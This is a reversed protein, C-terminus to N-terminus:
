HKSNGIGVWKHQYIKPKEIMTLLAKYNDLVEHANMKYKAGCAAVMSKFDYWRVLKVAPNIRHAIRATEPTWGIMQLYSLSRAELLEGTVEHVGNPLEFRKRLRVIDPGLELSEEAKYCIMSCFTGHTSSFYPKSEMNYHDAIYKTLDKILLPKSSVILMDDGLILMRKITHMNMLVLRSHIALNVIANGLATTAQGTLRMGNLTGSVTDGKYRWHQHVTRWSKLLDQDVGLMQYVAFEFDLMYEDTQRDQKSLDNEFFHCNVDTTRMLASLTDPTLGDAYVVEPRLLSKLRDKAEMFCPSYMACIGKAQWAIIRCITDQPQNVPKDKLLSELKLHVKVRNLPNAMFGEDLILELENQIKVADPRERLWKHIEQYNFSCPERQYADLQEKANSLIYAESFMNLQSHITQNAHKRITKVAGLRTNVSNELAGAFKTFVPRSQEPYKTLATKTEVVLPGPQMTSKIVSTEPTHIVLCDTLDNSQFFTLAELKPEIHAESLVMCFDGTAVNIYPRFTPVVRAFRDPKPAKPVHTLDMFKIAAINHIKSSGREPLPVSWGCDDVVAYPLEQRHCVVDPGSRLTDPIHRYRTRKVVDDALMVTRATRNTGLLQLEDRCLLIKDDAAHRKIAINYIKTVQDQDGSERCKTVKRRETLGLLSEVDQFIPHMECLATIAREDKIIYAPRPILVVQQQPKVQWFGSSPQHPQDDWNIRSSTNVENGHHQHAPERDQRWGENNNQVKFVFGSGAGVTQDVAQTQGRPKLDDKTRIVIIGSASTNVNILWFGRELKQIAAVRPGLVTECVIYQNHLLLSQIDLRTLLGQKIKTCDLDVSAYRLEDNTIAQDVQPTYQESVERCLKSNVRDSQLPSDFIDDADELDDVIEFQDNVAVATCHLRNGQHSVELFTTRTVGSKRILIGTSQHEQKFVINLPLLMMVDEFEDWSVYRAVGLAAFKRSIESQFSTPRSYKLSELVCSDNGTPNYLTGITRLNVVSYLGPSIKNVKETASKNSQVMREYAPNTEDPGTSLVEFRNDRTSPSADASKLQGHKVGTSAGRDVTRWGEMGQNTSPPADENSGDGTSPGDSDQPPSSDDMKPRTGPELLITPVRERWNFDQIAALNSRVAESTATHIASMLKDRIDKRQVTAGLGRSETAHGWSPQDGFFPIIVQPIQDVVCRQTTGAGGHHIFVEARKALETYNVYGTVTDVGIRHVIPNVIMVQWGNALLTDCVAQEASLRITGTMSGFSVLARRCGRTTHCEREVQRYGNDDVWGLYNLTMSDALAYPKLMSYVYKTRMKHLEAPGCQKMGWFQRYKNIVDQVQTYLLVMFATSPSEPRNMAAEAIRNSPGWHQSCLTILKLQRREAFTETGLSFPTSILATINTPTEDLSRLLEDVETKFRQAGQKIHLQDGPGSFEIHDKMSINYDGRMTHFKLGAGEVLPKLSVHGALTVSRVYRSLERGLAIFPQMDGTSGFTALLVHDSENLRVDTTGRQKHRPKHDSTNQAAKTERNARVIMRRSQGIKMAHKNLTANQQLHKNIRNILEPKELMEDLSLDLGFHSLVKSYPEMLSTKIHALTQSAWPNTTNWTNLLRVMRETQEMVGRTNFYIVSSAFQLDSISMDVQEWASRNSYYRANALTRAYNLLDEFSTDAVTCRLCLSRFVRVPIRVTRSRFIGETKATVLDKTYVPGTITVTGLSNDGPNTAYYNPQRANTMISLGAVTGVQVAPSGPQYLKDCLSEPIAYHEGSAATVTVVGGRKNQTLVDRFGSTSLNPCLFVTPLGAACRKYLQELNALGATTAIVPRPDRELDADSLTQYYSQSRLKDMVAQSAPDKISKDQMLEYVHALQSEAFETSASSHWSEMKYPDLEWQSNVVPIWAYKTLVIAPKAKAYKIMATDICADFGAKIAPMSIQNIYGEPVCKRLSEHFQSYLNSPLYMPDQRNKLMQLQVSETKERLWKHVPSNRSRHEELSFTMGDIAGVKRSDSLKLLQLKESELTNLLFTLKSSLSSANWDIKEYGDPHLRCMYTGTTSAGLGLTNHLQMHPYKHHDGPILQLGDSEMRAKLQAVRKENAQAYLQCHGPDDGLGLAYKVKDCNQRLWLMARDLVLAEWMHKVNMISVLERPLATTSEKGTVLQMLEVFLETVQPEVKDTAYVRRNPFDKYQEVLYYQPSGNHTIYLGCCVSCGARAKFTVAGGKVPIQLTAGSQQLLMLAHHLSMLRCSQSYTIKINNHHKLEPSPLDPRDDPTCCRRKVEQKEPKQDEDTVFALAEAVPDEPLHKSVVGTSKYNGHTDFWLTGLEFGMKKFVVRAQDGAQEVDANVGKSKARQVIYECITHLQQSDIKATRKPKTDQHTQRTKPQNERIIKHIARALKDQIGYGLFGRGVRHYLDQQLQGMQISLVTLASRCRTVASIMYNEDVTIGQNTHTWDYQVLLVKNRENGQFKHITSVEKDTIRSLSRRVAHQHCLIVDPNKSKIIARIAHPDWRKLDCFEVQTDHDAVSEIEPYFPKLVRCLSSGFRRTQWHYEKDTVHEVAGLKSRVGPLLITDIVGIQTPDGVMVLEDCCRALHYWTVCDIMTAEDLYIIDYRQPRYLMSEVSRVQISRGARERLVQQATTSSACLLVKHGEQARRRAQGVIHNTKGWGAVALIAKTRSDAEKLNITSDMTSLMCTSRLLSAMSQKTLRVSAKLCPPNSPDLSVVALGNKATVIQTTTGRATRLTLVDGTKLPEHINTVVYRGVGCRVLRAPAWPRLVSGNARTCSYYLKNIHYVNAALLDRPLNTTITTGDGGFDVYKYLDTDSDPDRANFLKALISGSQTGAKYNFRYQEGQANVLAVSDNSRIVQLPTMTTTEGIYSLVAAEFKVRLDKRVSLYESLSMPYHNVHMMRSSLDTIISNPVYEAQVPSVDPFTTMQGNALVWHLEDSGVYGKHMIVGFLESCPERKCITISSSTVIILNKEYVQSLTVLHEVGHPGEGVLQRLEQLSTNTKLRMFCHLACNTDSNAPDSYNEVKFAGQAANWRGCPVFPLITHHKTDAKLLGSEAMAEIYPCPGDCVVSLYSPTAKEAITQCNLDYESPETTTQQDVQGEPSTRNDARDKGRDASTYDPEHDPGDQTVPDQGVPGPDCCDCFNGTSPKLCCICRNPGEHTCSHHEHACDRAESCCCCLNDDCLRGCCICTRSGTNHECSDHRHGCSDEATVKVGSINLEKARGFRVEGSKHDFVDWAPHTLYSQLKLMDSEDLLDFLHSIAGKGHVQFATTAAEFVTQMLENLIIDTVRNQLTSRGKASPLALRARAGLVYAVMAHNIVDTHTIDYNTITKSKFSVRSHAIARAYDVLSQFTQDGSINRAQLQRLLRTNLKVRETTMALLGTFNVVGQPKIRPLEIEVSDSARMTVTSAVKSVHGGPVCKIFIIENNLLKHTRVVHYTKGVDYVVDSELVDRDDASLSLTYNCDEYLLETSNYLEFLQARDTRQGHVKGFRSHVCIVDGPVCNRLVSIVSVLHAEIVIDAQTHGFSQGLNAKACELVADDFDRSTAIGPQQQLMVDPFEQRLADLEQQTLNAPVQVLKFNFRSMALKAVRLDNAMAKHYYESDVDYTGDLYGLVGLQETLAGVHNPTNWDEFTPKLNFDPRIPTLTLPAGCFGCDLLNYDVFTQNYPDDYEDASLGMMSAMKNQVMDKHCANLMNCRACRHVKVKYDINVKHGYYATSLMGPMSAMMKLNRYPACYRNLTDYPNRYATVLRQAAKVLAHPIRRLPTFRRRTSFATSNQANTKTPADDTSRYARGQLVMVAQPVSMTDGDVVINMGRDISYVIPVEQGFRAKYARKVQRSLSTFRPTSVKNFNSLEPFRREFAGKTFDLTTHRVRTQKRVM